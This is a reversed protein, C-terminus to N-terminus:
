KTHFLTNTLVKPNPIPNGDNMLKCFEVMDGYHTQIQVFHGYFTTRVKKSSLTRGSKRPQHISKVTYITLIRNRSNRLILLTEM